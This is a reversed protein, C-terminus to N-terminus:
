LTKRIGIGYVGTWGVYGYELTLWLDDKWHWSVSDFTAFGLKLPESYDWGGYTYAYGYLGLGVGFAWDFDLNEGFSIGKHITAMPAAGYDIGGYGSFLYFSFLGRVAIGWEMPFEPIDINGMIKEAGVGASLGYFHLGVIGTLNIQGPENFQAKLDVDDAFLGASVVALLLAAVLLFRKM